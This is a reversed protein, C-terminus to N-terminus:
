RKLVVTRSTSGRYGKAAKTRVRYSGKALNLRRTHKAGKTWLIKPGLPKWTKNKARYLVRFPWQNKPGLDPKVVIKLGSRGNIARVIPKSKEKGRPSTKSPKGGVTRFTWSFPPQAPDSWEVTAKYESNPSLSDDPVFVGRKFCGNVPGGPGVLGFTRIGGVASSHGRYVGPIEVTIAVGYPSHIRGPCLEDAPDPIEGSFSLSGSYEGVPYGFPRGLFGPATEDANMVSPGFEGQTGGVATPGPSMLFSRHFATPIWGDVGGAGTSMVEGSCVTGVTACREEPSVGTFGPRGPTEKHLALGLGTPDNLTWYRSHNRAAQTIMANGFLPPLGASARVGNAEDIMRQAVPSGADGAARYAPGQYYALLDPASAFLGAPTMDISAGKISSVAQVLLGPKWQALVADGLLQRPFVFFGDSWSSPPEQAVPGGDFSFGETTVRLGEKDYLVPAERAVLTSGVPKFYSAATFSFSRDEDVYRVYPSGQKDVGLSLSCTNTPAVPAVVEGSLSGDIAVQAVHIEAVQVRPSWSGGCWGRWMRGQGDWVFQTGRTATALWDGNNFPVSSASGNAPDVAYLLTPATNSRAILYLLGSPSVAPQGEIFYGPPLPAISAWRGGADNSWRIQGDCRVWWGTVAAGLVDPQQGPGCPSAVSSWPAPPVVAAYADTQMQPWLALVLFVVVGVSMSRLVFGRRVLSVHHRGERNKGHM